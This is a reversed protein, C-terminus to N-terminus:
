TLDAVIKYFPYPSNLPAYAIPVFHGVHGREVYYLVDFTSGKDVYGFFDIDTLDSLDVGAVSWDPIHNTTRRSVWNVTNTGSDYTLDGDAIANGVIGHTTYAGGNVSTKMRLVFSANKEIIIHFKEAGLSDRFVIDQNLVDGTHNWQLAFIHLPLKCDEALVTTLPLTVQATGGDNVYGGKGNGYTHGWRVAWNDLTTDTYDYPAADAPTTCQIIWELSPTEEYPYLLALEPQAVPDFQNGTCEILDYEPTDDFQYWKTDYHLVLQGIQVGTGTNLNPDVEEVVGIYPLYSSVLSM